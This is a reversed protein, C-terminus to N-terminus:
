GAFSNENIYDKLRKDFERTCITIDHNISDIAKVFAETPRKENNTQVKIEIKQELPHPMKYGICQIWFFLSSMGAFKVDPDKLLQRFSNSLTCYNKYMRMLNGMTHNELYITFTGVYIFRNLVM